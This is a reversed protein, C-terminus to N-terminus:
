EIVCANREAYVSLGIRLMIPQCVTSRFPTKGRLQGSRAKLGQGQNLRPRSQFVSNGNHYLRSMVSALAKAKVVCSTGSVVVKRM